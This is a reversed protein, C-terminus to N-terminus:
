IVAVERKSRGDIMRQYGLDSMDITMYRGHTILESIARGVAPSQQFGHGSFGNAFYFNSVTPAAGIIMNQDVTNYAYHGAWSSVVSVQDFAPIRAALSPWVLEEFEDRRVRFDDFDATPDDSPSIGCLFHDGERRVHAGEPTIILPFRGEITTRCDFLFLSRVRPEVPVSLGVMAAVVDARPGACNVVHGTRIERGSELQVSEVRSGDAHPSGGIAVVRDKLYTVGNAIARRRFGQLLAWGDMSGERMSGLSGGALGETDLYPFHTALQEPTLLEAGVDEGQQITHRRELEGFGSPEALFLYASGHFGLEPSDGDVQVRAHFDDFFQMGFQSAKINIPDGFQERISSASLASSAREYSPDAEIVVVSGDFDSSESLFYAVASGMLAGGICVVDASQLTSGNDHVM